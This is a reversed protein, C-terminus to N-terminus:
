MLALRNKLLGNSMPFDRKVASVNSACERAKGHRYAIGEQLYSYAPRVPGVLVGSVGV